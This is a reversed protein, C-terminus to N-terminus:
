PATLVSFELNVLNHSTYKHMSMDEQVSREFPMLAMHTHGCLVASNLLCNYKSGCWVWTELYILPGVCYVYMKHFM